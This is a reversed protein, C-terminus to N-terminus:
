SDATSYYAEAVAAVYKVEVQAPEATSYYGGVAQEAAISYYMEAAAVYKVELGATSCCTVAEEVPNMSSSLNVKAVATTDEM